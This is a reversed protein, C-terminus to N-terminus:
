SLSALPQRTCPRRRRATQRGDTLDTAGHEVLLVRVQMVEWRGRSRVRLPPSQKTSPVPRRAALDSPLHPTRHANHFAPWPPKLGLWQSAVPTSAPVDAPHRSRLNFTDRAENLFRYIFFRDPEMPSIFSLVGM